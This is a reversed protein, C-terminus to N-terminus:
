KLLELMKSYEFSDALEYLKDYLKQDKSKVEDLKTLIDDYDAAEIASILQQRLIDSLVSCCIGSESSTKIMHEVKKESYLFDVNLYKKILLLLKNDDIPKPFFENFGAISVKKRDEHFVNATVAFVPIHKFKNMERIEAITQYGDMVPMRLDLLVLDPNFEKLVQLGQKGNDATEVIFGVDTLM